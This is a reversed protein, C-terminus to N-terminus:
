KSITFLMNSGFGSFVISYWLNIYLLVEFLGHGLFQGTWCFLQAALVVQLLSQWSGHTEFLNFYILPFYHWKWISINVEVLLFTM